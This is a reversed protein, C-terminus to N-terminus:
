HRRRTSVVISAAASLLGLWSPSGPSRLRLQQSIPRTLDPNQNPGSPNTQQTATGQLPHRSDRHSQDKGSTTPPQQEEGPNSTSNPGHERLQTLHQRDMATRSRCCPAVTAATRPKM